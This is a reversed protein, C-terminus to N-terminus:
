GWFNELYTTKTGHESPVNAPRTQLLRRFDVMIPTATVSSGDKSLFLEKECAYGYQYEDTHIVWQLNHLTLSESNDYALVQRKIQM